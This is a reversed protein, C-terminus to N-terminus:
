LEQMLARQVYEVGGKWNEVRDNNQISLLFYAISPLFLLLYELEFSSYRFSLTMTTVPVLPLNEFLMRFTQHRHQLAGSSYSFHGKRQYPVSSYIYRSIRFSKAPHQPGRDERVPLKGLSGGRGRILRSAWFSPFHLAFLITRHRNLKPIELLSGISHKSLLYKGCHTGMEIEALM